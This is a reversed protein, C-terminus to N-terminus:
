DRKVVWWEFGVLNVLLARRSTRRYEREKEGFIDRM